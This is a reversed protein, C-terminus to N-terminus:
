FTSVSLVDIGEEVVSTSIFVNVAETRFKRLTEKMRKKASVVEERDRPDKVNMNANSSHCYGVDTVTPLNLVIHDTM